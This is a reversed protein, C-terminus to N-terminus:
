GHLPAFPNGYIVTPVDDAIYKWLPCNGAQETTGTLPCLGEQRCRDSCFLSASTRMGRTSKPAMFALGEVRAILFALVVFLTFISVVAALPGM